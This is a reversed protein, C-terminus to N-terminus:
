QAHKAHREQIDALDSPNDALMMAVASTRDNVGLKSFIRSFYTKVTAESLYLHSAIQRNTNGAAALELVLHEQESLQPKNQPHLHDAMAQAARPAMVTRGAVTNRISEALYQPEVDKLLYGHAGAEIATLIDGDTDYTTLIVIKLNPQIRLAKRTVEPGNMDPMRLDLLLLDPANQKVCDLAQQGGSAEAVIDMDAHRELMSRIGERVMPHDDVIVIRIM